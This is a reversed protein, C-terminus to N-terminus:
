ANWKPVGHAAGEGRVEHWMDVRECAIGRYLMGNGLKASLRSGGVAICASCVQFNQLFFDATRRVATRDSNAVLVGMKVLADICRDSDKEYVGYFLELLGSRIDSPITGMMGFDYYILRGGDKADCAINGPHPDAPM